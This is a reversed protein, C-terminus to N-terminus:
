INNNKESEIYTVAKDMMRELLKQMVEKEEETFDETLFDNWEHLVDVIKPYVEEAKETPYLEIVRKDCESTRREIYGNQELLAAQRTVNSKNLYILKALKEQSIGPNRCINLIYTYQYGSLKTEILCDNRYQDACRAVRSIYRMFSIM